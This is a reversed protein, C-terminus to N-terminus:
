PSTMWKYEQLESNTPERISYMPHKSQDWSTVLPRFKVNVWTETEAYWFSYNKSEKQSRGRKERVDQKIEERARIVAGYPSDQIIASGLEACGATVAVVGALVLASLGSKIGM